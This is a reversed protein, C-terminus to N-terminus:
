LLVHYRYWTLQYYMYTFIKAVIYNCKKRKISRNLTQRSWVLFHCKDRIVEKVLLHDYAILVYVAINYDNKVDLAVLYILPIQLNFVM